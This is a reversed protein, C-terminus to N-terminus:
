NVPFSGLYHGDTTDMSYYYVGDTILGRAVMGNWHYFVVRGWADYSFQNTKLTGDSNAYGYDVGNAFQFWGSNEMKGNQNLYFAKNGVFTIQDKYIYGLSDFYCTYGVSSCYQFDMFVEHGHADFCIIHTGDPHYTLRDKMATGDAQIYYTFFGDFIFQNYIASGDPYYAHITGDTDIKFRNGNYECKTVAMNGGYTTAILDSVYRVNNDVYGKNYCSEVYVYSNATGEANGMNSMSGGIGGITDESTMGNESYLSSSSGCNKIYITGNKSINVSGFIGGLWTTTNGETPKKATIIGTSGCGDVIINDGNSAIEVGNVSYNHDLGIKGIVGGLEGVGSINGTNTCNKISSTSNDGKRGTEGIVGGISAAGNGADGQSDGLNKCNEVTFQSAGIYRSEEGIIGGAYVHCDRTNFTINGTNECDVVHEGGNMAAIGGIESINGSINGENKCRYINGANQGTIGGVRIAYSGGANINVRSVCDEITGDNYEVIGGVDKLSSSNVQLNGVVTLNRVTGSSAVQSFLSTEGQMGYIIHGNGDFTGSLKMGAINGIYPSIDIDSILVYNQNMAGTAYNALEAASSITVTGAEYTQSVFEQQNMEEAFALQGGMSFVTAFTCAGALLVKFTKKM